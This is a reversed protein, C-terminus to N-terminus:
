LVNSRLRLVVPLKGDLTWARPRIQACEQFGALQAVRGDLAAEAAVRQTRLAALGQWSTFHPLASRFDAEDKDTREHADAEDKDTREHAETSLAEHAGIDYSRQQPISTGYFDAPGADLGRLRRLNLAADIMPSNTRLKYAALTSLRAASGITGGGGPNILHPNVTMGTNTAGNKEQGTARRWAALSRYTTGGNRIRFPDGSSWYDNGQLLVGSQQGAVLPVGGTTVFINNYLRTNTTKGLFRVAKPAAGVRPSVYVTNHYVETDKIGNRWGNWFHIAGYSGKRGDNESINYRVVNNSFERAYPFQALLYGAGANNHSYNYQMTSNTVGGDLDFGGGDVTSTKNNYSENHQITVLNSDWAWIGVPGGGPYNNNAGNNYAVSREITARNVDGIVIGSGSHPDEGGKNSIGMNNYTRCNGVYVNEHAWGSARSSFSGFSEIGADANHHASVNTIKVDRFGSKTGDSPVASLLVGANGFGSVEVDAVRVHAFKTAGGRDTYIKVGSVTNGATRGAGSVVLSSVEIGGANYVSVGTGTGASIRARGTGYSGVKVPNAVTGADEAVLLLNGNFTQGGRFLLRDGPELNLANARNITRWPSTMSTGSNLDNGGAADVYYTTNHAYAFDGLVLTAVFWALCVGLLVMPRQIM